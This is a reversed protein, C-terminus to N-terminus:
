EMQTYSSLIDAVEEIPLPVIIFKMAKNEGNGIQRKLNILTHGPKKDFPHAHDIDNVNLLIRTERINNYIEFTIPLLVFM